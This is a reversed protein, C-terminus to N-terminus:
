VITPIKPFSSIGPILTTAPEVQHSSTQLQAIEQELFKIKEILEQERKWLTELPDEDQQQFISM